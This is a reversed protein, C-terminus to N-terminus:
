QGTCSPGFVPSCLKKSSQWFERQLNAATANQQPASLGSSGQRQRASQAPTATTRHDCWAGALMLLLVWLGVRKLWCVCVYVANAPAPLCCGPSAHHEGATGASSPLLWAPAGGAAAAGTSCCSQLLPRRPLLAPLCPCTRGQARGLRSFPHSNTWPRLQHAAPPDLLRPPAPHLLYTILAATGGVHM